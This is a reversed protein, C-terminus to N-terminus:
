VGMSALVSIETALLNLDYTRSDVGERMQENTRRRNRPWMRWVGNKVSSGAALEIADKAHIMVLTQDRQLKMSKVVADIDGQAQWERSGTGVM